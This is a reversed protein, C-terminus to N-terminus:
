AASEAGNKGAELLKMASDYAEKAVDETMDVAQGDVVRAGTGANRVEDFLDRMVRSWEVADKASIKLKVTEGDPPVLQLIFNDLVANATQMLKERAETEYAAWKDALAELTKENLRSRFEEREDYWSPEDKAGAARAALGSRAIGHKVALTTLTVNDNPKAYVYERKLTLWDVSPNRSM